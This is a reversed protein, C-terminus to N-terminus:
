STLYSQCASSQLPLDQCVTQNGTATPFLLASSNKEVLSNNNNNEETEVKAFTCKVFWGADSITTRVVVDICIFHLYVYLSM